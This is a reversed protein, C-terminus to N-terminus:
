PKLIITPWIKRKGYETEAKVRGLAGGEVIIQETSKLPINMPALKGESRINALDLSWRGKKNTLTSLVASKETPTVLRLYVIVGVAPKENELIVEGYVSNPHNLVDLSKATKFKGEVNGRLGQYIKFQYVKDAELNKVTVHHNTYLNENQSIKDWDDLWFNKNLLIKGKTPKETIWSVTAQHETINSILINQPPSTPELFFNAVPILSILIFLIMLFKSRKKSTLFRKIRSMAILLM